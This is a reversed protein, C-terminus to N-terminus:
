AASFAPKGPWGARRGPWARRRSNMARRTPFIGPSMRPNPASPARRPTSACAASGRPAISSCPPPPPPRAALLRALRAARSVTTAILAWSRARPWPGAPLGRARPALVALRGLKRERAEGAAGGGFRRVADLTLANRNGIGILLIRGISKRGAPTSPYLLMRQEPRGQFDGSDLAQAIVGGLSRDLSAVGQPLRPGAQGGTKAPENSVPIVLLDASAAAVGGAKVSIKM